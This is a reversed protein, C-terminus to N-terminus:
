ASEGTLWAIRFRYGYEPDSFLRPLYPTFRKEFARRIPFAASQYARILWPLLSDHTFAKSFWEMAVERVRAEDDLLNGIMFEYAEYRDSYHFFADILLGRSDPHEDYFARLLPYHKENGFSSLTKIAAIRVEAESELLKGVLAKEYIDLQYKRIAKIANIKVAFNPDDLMKPVVEAAALKSLTLVTASFGGRKAEPLQALKELFAEPKM